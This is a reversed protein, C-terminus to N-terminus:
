THNGRAAQKVYTAFDTSGATGVAPAIWNCHPRSVCLVHEPVTDVIEM